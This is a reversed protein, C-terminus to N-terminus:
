VCQARGDVEIITPSSFQSFLINQGPSNDQWVAAGTHKNFCILSPADPKPVRNPGEDAGNGTIVYIFDKHGTISSRPMFGMLDAPPHVGFRGILDVKWLLRPESGDRRLAAIDLCVVEGRNTVFWLRDDEILPSCAISSGESDNVRAGRLRPSVYRYLPKG